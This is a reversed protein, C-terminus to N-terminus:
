ILRMLLFADIPSFLENTETRQKQSVIFARKRHEFRIFNIDILVTDFYQKRLVSDNLSFM